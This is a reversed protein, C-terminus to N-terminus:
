QAQIVWKLGSSSTVRAAWNVGVRVADQCAPGEPCVSRQAVCEGYGSSRPCRLDIETARPIEKEAEAEGPTISATVAVEVPTVGQALYDRRQGRQMILLRTGRREERNENTACCLLGISILHPAAALLDGILRRITRPRTSQLNRQSPLFHDLGPWKSDM